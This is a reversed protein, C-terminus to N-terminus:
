ALTLPQWEKRAWSARIADCLENLDYPKPIVVVASTFKPAVPVAWARGTTLIVGAALACLEEIEEREEVSLRADTTSTWSATLVLWEPDRRLRCKLEPMSTCRAVDIGEVNFLELLISVLAVEPEYLLVRPRSM